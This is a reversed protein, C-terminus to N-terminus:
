IAATTTWCPSRARRRHGAKRRVKFDMQWLENPQGREFRQTAPPHREESCVKGHRLLIRHITNRPLDVGARQLVVQLKRAGWDPYIDRVEVVRRELEAGTQWPSRHPKRSQEAIGAVGLERYRKLWLYGTPRSIEYAACLAVDEGEAHSGGCVARATRACGDDEVGDEDREPASRARRLTFSTGPRHTFSTM